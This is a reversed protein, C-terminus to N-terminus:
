DGYSEKIKEDLHQQAVNIVRSYSYWERAKDLFKQALKIKDFAIAIEVYYPIDIRSVVINQDIIKNLYIALTEAKTKDLTFGLIIRYLSTDNPQLAVAKQAYDLIFKRQFERQEDSGAREFLKIHLAAKAKYALFHEPASLYSSYFQTFFRDYNGVNAHGMALIYGLYYFNPNKEYVGEFQDALKQTTENPTLGADDLYIKLATEYDKKEEASITALKDIKAVELAELFAQFAKEQEQDKYYAIALHMKAIGLEDRSATELYQTYIAEAEKIHGQSLANEAKQHTSNFNSSWALFLSFFKAAIVIQKM